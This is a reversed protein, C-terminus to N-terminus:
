QWTKGIALKCERCNDHNKEGTYISAAIIVVCVFLYIIIGIKKKMIPNKLSSNFAM